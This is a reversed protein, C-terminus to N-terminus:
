QQARYGSLSHRAPKARRWQRARRRRQTTSGQSWYIWGDKFALQETPHDGTPLGTIFPNVNGTSPDLVVIRSSNNQGNHQHTAQNSDTVFLRGGQFGHEFGLDVAPGEPQLGGHATPKGLPAGIQKGKEDFVLVDPTFPNTKDFDGSGIKSQDNCVSPLGHGSELVFVQFHKADGRFAIGTPAPRHDVIVLPGAVVM